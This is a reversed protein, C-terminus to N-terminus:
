NILILGKFASNFGMQWRNANNYAWWIRWTLMILTLFDKWNEFVSKEYKRKLHWKRLSKTIHWTINMDTGQLHTLWIGDNLSFSNLVLYPSVMRSLILSGWLRPTRSKDGANNFTNKGFRYATNKVSASM